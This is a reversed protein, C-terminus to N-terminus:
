LRSLNPSQIYRLRKDEQRLRDREKMAVEETTVFVEYGGKTRCLDQPERNEARLDRGRQDGDEADEHRRQPPAPGRKDPAISQDPEEDVVADLEECIANEIGGFGRQQILLRYVACGFDGGACILEVLLPDSALACLILVPQHSLLLSAVLRRFRRLSGLRM